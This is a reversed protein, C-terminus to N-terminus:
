YRFALGASFSRNRFATASEDARMDICGLEANVKVMFYRLFIFRVGFDVGFDFRKLLPLFEEYETESLAVSSEGFTNLEITEKGYLGLNYKGTDTYKGGVGFALYPGAALQLGAKKGISINFSFELPVEVYMSTVDRELNGTGSDDRRTETFGKCEFVASPLFSVSSYYIPIDAGLGARYGIKYDAKKLSTTNYTCAAEAWYHVGDFVSFQKYRDNMQASASLVLFTAVITLLIRKM